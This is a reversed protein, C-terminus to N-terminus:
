PRTCRSSPAHEHDGAGRQQERQQARQPHPWHRGSPMGISRLALRRAQELQDLLTRWRVPAGRGSRTSISPSRFAATTAAAAGPAARSAGCGGRDDAQRQHEAQRGLLEAGDIACSNPWRCRRARCARRLPDVARPAAPEHQGCARSRAPAPAAVDGVSASANKKRWKKGRKLARAKTSDRWCSNSASRAACRMTPARGAASPGAHRDLHLRAAQLSSNQGRATAGRRWTATAPSRAATGRAAGCSARRAQAVRPGRSQSFSASLRRGSLVRCAGRAARGGRTRRADLRRQRRRGLRLAASASSRRIPRSSQIRACRRVSARPPRAPRSRAAGSRWRRLAVHDVLEFTRRALRTRDVGVVVQQPCARRAQEVAVLGLSCTSRRSIASWGSVGPRESRVPCAAPPRLRRRCRLSSPASSSRPTASAPLLGHAEARRRTALGPQLRALAEVLQLGPARQQALAVALGRRRHLRQVAEVAFLPELARCEAPAHQPESCSRSRPSRAAPRAQTIRLLSGAAGPQRKQRTTISRARPM